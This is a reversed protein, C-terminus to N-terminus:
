PKKEPYPTDVPLHDEGGDIHVHDRGGWKPAGPTGPDIRWRERFKGNEDLEGWSGPRNVNEVAGPPLNAPTPLKGGPGGEAPKAEGNDGPEESYERGLNGERKGADCRCELNGSAMKGPKLSCTAVSLCPRELIDLKAQDEFKGLAAGLTVRDGKIVLEVLETEPIAKDIGPTDTGAPPHREEELVLRDQSAAFREKLEAVKDGKAPNRAVRGGTKMGLRRRTEDQLGDFKRDIEVVVAQCAVRAVGSADTRGPPCNIIGAPVVTFSVDHGARSGEKGAFGITAVAAVEEGQAMMTRSVSLSLSAPRLPDPPPKPAEQVIPSSSDNRQGSNPVNNNQAQSKNRGNLMKGFGRFLAPIGKLILEAGLKGLAEGLEANGSNPSPTSSINSVARRRPAPDQCYRVCVGNPVPPPPPLRAILAPDFGAATFLQPRAHSLIAATGADEIIEPNRDVSIDDGELWRVVVSTPVAIPWRKEETDAARSILIGVVAGEENFVPGGSFEPSVAADTQFSGGSNKTVLGSSKTWLGSVDSHGIASVLDGKSVGEGSPLLAPQGLKGSYALIALGLGADRRVVKSASEVGKLDGSYTLLRPNEEGAVVSADTVLISGTKTGLLTAAARGSNSLVVFVSKEPEAPAKTRAALVAEGGRHHHHFALDEFAAARECYLRSRAAGVAKNSELALTLKRIRARRREYAAGSMRLHSAAQDLAREASKGDVGRGLLAVLWPAARGDETQFLGDPNELLKRRADEPVCPAEPFRRAWTYDTVALTRYIADLSSARDRFFPKLEPSTRPGLRMLTAKVQAEDRFSELGDSLLLLDAQLAALGRADAVGDGEAQVAAEDQALVSNSLLYWLPDAPTEARVTIVGALIIALVTRLKRM